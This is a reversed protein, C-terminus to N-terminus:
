ETSRGAAGSSSDGSSGRSERGSRGARFGPCRARGRIPRRRRRGRRRRGRGRRRRACGSSPRRRSAAAPRKGGASPATVTRGASGPPRSHETAKVPWATTAVASGAGCTRAWPGSPKPPERDGAQAGQAPRRAESNPRTSATVHAPPGTLDAVFEVALGEVAGQQVGEGLSAASPGTASTPQPGPWTVPRRAERCRRGGRRGATRRPGTGPSTRRPAGRSRDATGRPPCSRGASGSPRGPRRGTGRRPSGDRVRGFPGGGVGLEGAHQPGSGGHEDGEVGAVRIQAGSLLGVEALPPAM